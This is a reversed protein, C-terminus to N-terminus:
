LREFGRVREWDTVASRFAEEELRAARVYHEVVADGFSSRAVESADFLEIAEGLTSPVRASDVEYGNGSFPAPLELAAEVGALGAAVLASIAMYPNVDGGPIRCEVRLSPGHGVVRFACTRNDFGWVLATPAFSGPVFRKYSNVNPALLLTLERSHAVMGALFQTFVTSFGYANDGAFIAQNREDVLSLHIHCSNGERGDFKAMFTLSLGQQDAIEKAGLKFLSHEDCKTILDDYKFNIEHQGLNCEGKSSEVTMGADTMARRIRGILGEVRSSGQISYDVNYANVPTLGQYHSEWASRYSDSFVMFELETGSLGRWGHSALRGVQVSLIERPAVAVPEGDSTRVDAMIVATREHWPMLRTSSLDAVFALDGYGREWSTLEFGGVTRMDVDTALLYACGEITSEQLEDLFFRASLRKGQLRGQMDCIAVIITDIEGSRVLTALDQHGRRQLPSTAV